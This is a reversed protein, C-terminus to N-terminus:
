MVYRNKDPGLNKVMNLMQKIWDDEMLIVKTNATVGAERFMYTFLSTFDIQMYILNLYSFMSMHM